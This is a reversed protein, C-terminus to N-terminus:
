SDNGSLSSSRPANIQKKGPIRQLNCESCDSFSLCMRDISTDTM